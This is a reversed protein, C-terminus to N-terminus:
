YRGSLVLHVKQDGSKPAASNLALPVDSGKIVRGYDLAVSLWGRASRLGLGATSASDNSPVSSGSIGQRSTWGADWFALWRLGPVWEPSTIELTGAFGSDGALAREQTGRLSAHGGVGIQEGAILATPAWQAQGRVGFVWGDGFAKSWFGNARVATWRSRTVAPSESQYALLNNGSGGPLNMALSVTSGWQQDSTQAKIAYGLSLPRSRRTQQGVLSIGNLATPEFTKDELSVFAYQKIGPKAYLYRTATLGLSRGAGTSSFTGFDGVVNSDTFQVDLMTLANYLPVRYNLGVQRVGSPNALSTTGAAMFQHDQGMVNDHGVSFTLRDKGTPQTGTNNLTTSLRLPPSDTVKVAADILDPESAARLAVQANKSPNENAMATQIALTELNPTGGQALAPLSNRINAESYAKAGDVSVQGIAFRVMQLQIVEGVEQPPLVVRHLGFGKDRLLAELLASAKQLNELTAPQRLLPALALTVDSEALPNAGAVSFGRITPLPVGQAAPQAWASACLLWAGLVAVATRHSKFEFESM